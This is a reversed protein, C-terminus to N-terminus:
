FKGSEDCDPGVLCEAWRVRGARPGDTESESKELAMCAETKMVTDIEAGSNKLWKGTFANEDKVCVCHAYDSKECGGVIAISLRVVSVFLRRVDVQPNSHIAGIEQVAFGSSEM